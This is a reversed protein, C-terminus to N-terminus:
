ANYICQLEEHIKEHGCIFGCTLYASVVAGMVGPAIISQGALLLGKIKTAPLPNYQSVTHAAGYMSGFPSQCYDRLTLPTAADIFEVKGLLEPCRKFVQKEFEAMVAAKFDLYDQPRNKLSSDKWKSFETFSYPMIATVSQKGDSDLTQGASLFIANEAMATEGSLVKEYDSEPWLYINRGQLEEVPNEAIGFLILASVTEQLENIRRKYVPRFAGDEVCRLMAAPHASWICIRGKLETGNDLLLSKFNKDEDHNIRVAKKECFVDVGHKKLQKQYADVLTKGGSEVTHSSRFYSGAVLAHTTLMAQRPPTGYLLTHCCLLDKLEQNDTISDLYDKLSGNDDHAASELNFDLKFNLFSSSEFITRIQDLYKDIAETEAPFERHLTRRVREYGHPLCIRKKQKEFHFCDCGDKDFPIKILDDSIGLHKFYTDLPDKDGLGGILHVGTEFHVGKRNFGRVTPGPLPFAELLAVKYGQKALLLASTMGSIGAGVVIHDYATM